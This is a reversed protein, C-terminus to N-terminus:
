VSTLHELWQAVFLSTDWSRSLVSNVDKEIIIKFHQLYVYKILVRGLGSDPTVVGSDNSSSSGGARFDMGNKESNHVMEMDTGTSIDAVLNTNMSVCLPACNELGLIKHKMDVHNGDPEGTSGNSHEQSSNQVKGKKSKRKKKNATKPKITESEMVDVSGLVDVHNQPVTLDKQISNIATAISISNTGLKDKLVQNSGPPFFSHEGSSLIKKSRYLEFTKKPLAAVQRAMEKIEDIQLLFLILNSCIVNGANESCLHLYTGLPKHIANARM